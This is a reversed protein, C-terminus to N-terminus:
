IREGNVCKPSIQVEVEFDPLGCVTDDINPPFPSECLYEQKCCRM